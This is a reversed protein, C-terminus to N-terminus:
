SHLARTPDLPPISMRSLYTGTSLACTSVRAERIMSYDPSKAVRRQEHGPSSDLTGKTTDIGVGGQMKKVGLAAKDKRGRVSTFSSHQSGKRSIAVRSKNRFITRVSTTPEHGM